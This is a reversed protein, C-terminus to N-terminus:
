GNRKGRELRLNFVGPRAEQIPAPRVRMTAVPPLFCPQLHVFSPQQMRGAEGSIFAMATFNVLTQSFFENSFLPEKVTSVSISESLSAQGSRMAGLVTSEEVKGSESINKSVQERRVEGTLTQGLKTTVPDDSSLMIKSRMNQQLTQFARENGLGEIMSVYSQTALVTCCKGERSIGLFRADGSLISRNAEDIIMFFPRSRNLRTDHRTRRQIVSQADQKLYAAILRTLSPYDGDNMELTVVKGENVAYEFGPFNLKAQPPCFQHHIAESAVFVGTIETLSSIVSSMLKDGSGERAGLFENEFYSHAQEYDFASVLNDEYRRDFASFAEERYDYDNVLKHIDAMTFYGYAGRLLRISAAMLNSAMTDWFSSDSGKSAPGGLMKMVDRCREAVEYPELSPQYVPNYYIDGGISIRIFDSGRGCEELYRRTQESFNAKTDIILAGAKREPDDAAYWLVQKTFPYMVSSTKGTGISGSVLINQYLGTEPIIMWEPKEVLAASTQEHRLGVIFQLKDQDWPYAPVQVESAEIPEAKGTEDLFRACILTYFRWGIVFSGGVTLPTYLLKLAIWFASFDEAMSFHGYLIQFEGQGSFLRTAIHDFHQYYLVAVCISFFWRSSILKLPHYSSM